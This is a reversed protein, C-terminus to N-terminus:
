PAVREFKNVIPNRFNSGDESSTGQIPTVLQLHQSTLVRHRHRIRFLEEQCVTEDGGIVIQVTQLTWSLPLALM